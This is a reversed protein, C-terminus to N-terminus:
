LIFEVANVSWLNEIHRFRKPKGCWSGSISSNGIAIILPGTVHFHLKWNAVFRSSWTSILVCGTRCAILWSQYRKYTFNYFKSNPVICTFESFRSECIYHNWRRPYKSISDLCYEVESQHELLFWEYNNCPPWPHSHFISFEITSLRITSRYHM